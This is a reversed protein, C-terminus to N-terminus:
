KELRYARNTIRCQKIQEADSIAKVEFHIKNLSQIDGWSKEVTKLHAGSYSFVTAPFSESKLTAVEIHETFFIKWKLTVFNFSFTSNM